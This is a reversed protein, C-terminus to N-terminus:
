VHCWIGCGSLRGTGASRNGFFSLLFIIPNPINKGLGINKKQKQSSLDKKKRKIIIIITAAITMMALHSTRKWTMSTQYRCM